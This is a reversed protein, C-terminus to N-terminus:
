QNLATNIRVANNKISPPSDMTPSKYQTASASKTGSQEAPVSKPDILGIYADYRDRISRVYNVPERGRVYGHAAQRAYKSNSLLLMAKEVHGFWRNPEWGKKRALRRADKVHGLGANYAALSFWMRDKVSLEEDFREVLWAMYKVGARIGNEPKQLDDIGLERATRPMVQMLGSAGVWSKAKPNFRSEQYMQSVLLRWDLNYKESYKRVLDDYPSLAGGNGGDVRQQLRKRISHPKRFYKDRMMNYFLGRYEKKVFANVRQLLEKDEARVLWAHSVPEGVPLAGKIDDRWTLEIDLIHSDALTLDYEGEAVKAIIEETEMNEPAQALELAIGSQQLKSLTKWYSSSPRVVFTRGVLDQMSAIKGDTRSVVIETVENIRRSAALGQTQWNPDITLSAAILDGKGQKLWPLLEERSPPVVIEVRLGHQKAFKQSLEYDFGVLEGRWLFYTAASNRTLVRLVKRKKIEPFDAKYVAQSKETLKEQSLFLDLQKKLEISDPRLAWAIPREGSVDFAVRLEDRYRLVHNAINSDEITFDTKGGAVADLISDSSMAAPLEEVVLKPHKQKLVQATQWFSTNKQVSLKKGSLQKAKNITDKKRSILQEKVINVPVTFLMEKKRADTITMNAAIVDAQGQMLALKTNEFHDVFVWSITLGMTEGFKEILTIDGNLPNGQRPLFEAQNGFRPLVVRLTGHKKIADLDGMEVYNNNLPKIVKSKSASDKDCAVLSMVLVWLILRAVIFISVSEKNM